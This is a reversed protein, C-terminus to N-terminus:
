SNNASPVRPTTVCITNFSGAAFDLACGSLSSLIRIM